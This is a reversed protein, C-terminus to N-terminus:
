KDLKEKGLIEGDANFLLSYEDGTADDVYVGVCKDNMFGTTRVFWYDVIM